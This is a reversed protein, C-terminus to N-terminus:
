GPSRVVCMLGSAWALRVTAFEGRREIDGILVPVKRDDWTAAAGSRPTPVRLPM